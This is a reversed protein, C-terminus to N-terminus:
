EDSVIVRNRGMRKAQYLRRDAIKLLGSIDDCGDPETFAIGVSVTLHECVGSDENAITLGAIHSRIREGFSSDPNGDSVIAFEEGGLRFAFDGPRRCLEKLEKGITQLAEDGVSHGYRDNLKKFYDIDVLILNLSKKDRRARKLETSFVSEFHRRNYLGTLQDTISLEQLKNNAERLEAEIRLRDNRERMLSMTRSSLGDYMSMITDILVRVSGNMKRDSIIKAQELSSGESMADVAIALRKDDDIIHFALWRILFRVIDEIVEQLPKNAEQERLEVVKPLFSSHRLQHSSFWSDDHFYESWIIEEAEFHHDAYQALEAFADNIEVPQDMILTNALKNLLRVLVKHEEDIQPNGIEFNKNWPFVEFDSLDLPDSM